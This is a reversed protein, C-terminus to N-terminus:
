AHQIEKVAPLGPDSLRAPERYHTPIAV